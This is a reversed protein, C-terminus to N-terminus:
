ASAGSDWTEALPVLHDIDVGRPGEINCDDYPVWQGRVSRM